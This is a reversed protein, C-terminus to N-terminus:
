LRNSLMMLVTVLIMVGVRRMDPTTSSHFAEDVGMQSPQELDLLGILGTVDRIEPGVLVKLEDAVEEGEPHQQTEDDGRNEAAQDTAGPEASESTKEPTAQNADEKFVMDCPANVGDTVDPSALGVLAM